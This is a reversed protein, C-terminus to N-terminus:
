TEAAHHSRLSRWTQQLGYNPPVVQIVAQAYAWGRAVGQETAVIRCDRAVGGKPV